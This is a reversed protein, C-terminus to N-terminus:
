SIIRDGRFCVGEIQLLLRKLAVGGETSFGVMRGDGGVVRHCPIFPPLPNRSMAGGVARAAGPSGVRRAAEGYTIVTGRGVDILVAYVRRDFPSCGTLDLVVASLDVPEGRYYASLLRVAEDPPRTLRNFATEPIILNREASERQSVPLVSRILGDPTAALGVWGRDTEFVAYPVSM